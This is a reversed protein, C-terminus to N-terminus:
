TYCDSPAAYRSGCSRPAVPGTQPDARRGASGAPAEVEPTNGTELQIGALDGLTPEAFSVRAIM